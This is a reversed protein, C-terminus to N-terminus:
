YAGTHGVIRSLVFNAFNFLVLICWYAGTHVLIGKIKRLPCKSTLIEYKMCLKYAFFVLFSFHLNGQVVNLVAPYEM